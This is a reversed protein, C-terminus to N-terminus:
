NEFVVVFFTWYVNNMFEKAWEFHNKKSLYVDKLSLYYEFESHISLNQGWTDRNQM